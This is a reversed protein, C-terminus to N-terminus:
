IAFCFPPSTETKAFTKWNKNSTQQNDTHQPNSSVYFNETKDLKTKKQRRQEKKKQAADAKTALVRGRRVMSTCGDPPPKGTARPRM